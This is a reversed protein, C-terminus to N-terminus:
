SCDHKLQGDKVWLAQSSWWILFIQGLFSNTFNKPPNWFRTTRVVKKLFVRNLINQLQMCLAFVCLFFNYLDFCNHFVGKFHYGNFCGPYKTRKRKRLINYAYSEFCFKNQSFKFILARLQKTRLKHLKTFQTEVVTHHLLRM